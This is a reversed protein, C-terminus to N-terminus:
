VTIISDTAGQNEEGSITTKEGRKRRKKALRKKEAAKLQDYHENITDSDIVKTPNLHRSGIL